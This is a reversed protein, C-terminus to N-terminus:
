SFFNCLDWRFSLRLVCLWDAAHSDLDVFALFPAPLWINGQSPNEFLFPRPFYLLRVIVTAYFLSRVPQVTSLDTDVPARSAEPLFVNTAGRAESAM